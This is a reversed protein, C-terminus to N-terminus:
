ATVKTDVGLFMALSPATGGLSDTHTRMAAKSKDSTSPSRSPVSDVGSTGGSFTPSSLLREVAEGRRERLENRFGACAAGLGRGELPLGVPDDEVGRLVPNIWDSLLVLHSAEEEKLDMAM